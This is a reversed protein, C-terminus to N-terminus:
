GAVLAVVTEVLRLFPVLLLLDVENSLEPLLTSLEPVLEQHALVVVLSVTEAEVVALDVVLVV